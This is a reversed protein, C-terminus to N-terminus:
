RSTGKLRSEIAVCMRRACWIASLAGEGDGEELAEATQVLAARAQDVDRLLENTTTEAM